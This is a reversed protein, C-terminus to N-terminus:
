ALTGYLLGGALAGTFALLLYALFVPPRAIAFVAMMAPGSTVGGALLFAMASGTAMGQEVLSAILPLAAFGNLYAPVGLLVAVLISAGSEAGLYAAVLATPVYAVMLSELLFALLLWKGLFLLTTRASAVFRSRRAADRWFQVIIVDPTNVDKTGCGRAFRQRLPHQLTHGALLCHTGLGGLLGMGFAAVTKGIAFHPGMLAATLIFMSPDMLPSALWFAMVPALPVGMTLLAAILPIVGCSCFPSLTGFLAAAPIMILIRGQFISALHDQLGTGHAVAVVSVSLLLFPLIGRFSAATLMLSQQGVAPDILFVAALIVLSALFVPDVGALHRATPTIIQVLTNMIAADDDQRPKLAAVQPPM